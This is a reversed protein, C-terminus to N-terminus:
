NRFNGPNLRPSNSPKPVGGQLKTGTGGDASDLFPRLNISESNNEGGLIERGWNFLDGIGDTERDRYTNVADTQEGSDATIINDFVRDRTVLPDQGPPITFVIRCDPVQETTVCVTNYDNVVDTSLEILGDPRYSELRRSIEYCRSQSDWGDGMASPTAWPFYQNPESEPQYMVTYEGNVSQCSFRAESDAVPSSSSGTSTPTTSTGTSGPEETDVVVPPSSSSDAQSVSFTYSPTRPLAMASANSLLFAVGVSLGLSRLVPFEFVKPSMSVM